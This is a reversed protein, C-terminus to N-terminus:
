PLKRTDLMLYRGGTAGLVVLCLRQGRADAEVEVTGALNGLDVHLVETLATGGGVPVRALVLEARSRDADMIQNVLSPPGMPM